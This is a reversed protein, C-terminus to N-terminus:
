KSKRGFAAKGSRGMMPSPRLPLDAESTESQLAAIIRGIRHTKISSCYESTGTREPERSHNLM